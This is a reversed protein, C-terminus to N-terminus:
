INDWFNAKKDKEKDKSQNNLDLEQPLKEDTSEKTFTPQTLYTQNQPTQTVQEGVATQLITQQEIRNKVITFQKQNRAFSTLGGSFFALLIGSCCLLSGIIGIIDEEIYNENSYMTITLPYNSEYYYTEDYIYDFGPADGVEVDECFQNGDYVTIGNSDSITFEINACTSSYDVDVWFDMMWNNSDYNMIFSGSDDFDSAVVQQPEIIESDVEPNSFSLTAFGIVMIAYGINRVTNNPREEM